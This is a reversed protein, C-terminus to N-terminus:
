FPGLNMKIAFYIFIWSVLYISLTLKLGFKVWKQFPVKAIGCMAITAGITPLIFNPVTAGVQFALVATQQTIGITTALPSIIPMLAVAMGSGSPIFFHIIGAFITILITAIFPTLASLPTTLANIITDMIKGNELVVQIARAIGVVLAIGAANTVGATFHKIIDDVKYRNVIGVVIGGILFVASMQDLYWGLKAAGYIIAAFMLMMVAIVAKQNGNLTYEDFSKELGMGTTDVDSVYSKEKNNKVKRAYLSIIFAVICTSVFWMVTRFELGSFAPMGVVNHATGLIAANIPGMAFGIGGGGIVMALGVILDYGLGLAITVGIITFPIQIEPGVIIGLISFLFTVIWIVATGPFRSKTIKGLLKGIGNELAGTSNIISFAGGSLMILFIISGSAVMGQPIALFMEFPGVPNQEVQAYSGPVVVPRGVGEIVERQFEGAPIIWTLITAFVVICLLVVYTHPMKMWWKKNSNVKDM